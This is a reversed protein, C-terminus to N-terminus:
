TTPRRHSRIRYAVYDYGADGTAKVEAEALSLADNWVADQSEIRKDALDRRLNVIVEHALDLEEKHQQKLREIEDM